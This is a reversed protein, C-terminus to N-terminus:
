KGSHGLLEGQDDAASCGRESGLFLVVVVFLYLKLLLFLHLFVVGHAAVCISTFTRVSLHSLGFAWIGCM